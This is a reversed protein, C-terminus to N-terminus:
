LSNSFYISVKAGRNRDGRYIPTFKNDTGTPASPFRVANLGVRYASNGVAGIQLTENIRLNVIIELIAGVYYYAREAHREGSVVLADLGLPAVHKYFRRIWTLFDHLLLRM